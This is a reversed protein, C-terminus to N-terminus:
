KIQAIKALKEAKKRSKERDKVANAEAEKAAHDILDKCRKKKLAVLMLFAPLNCLINIIMMMWISTWLIKLTMRITCPKLMLNLFAPMQIGTCLFEIHVLFVRMPMMQPHCGHLIKKLMQQKTLSDVM